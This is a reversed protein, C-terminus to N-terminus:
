YGQAYKQKCLKFLPDIFKDYESDISMFSLDFSKSHDAIRESKIRSGDAYSQDNQILAWKALLLNGLRNIEDPITEFGYSYTVKVTGIGKTFYGTKLNIIGTEIDFIYETDSIVDDTNDANNIIEIDGIIPFKNLMLTQKKYESINYLEEITISEGFGDRYIELDIWQKIVKKMEDTINTHDIKSNGLDDVGDATYYYIDAM